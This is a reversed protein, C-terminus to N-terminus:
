ENYADSESRSINGEILNIIEMEESLSIILTVDNGDKDLINLIEINYGYQNLTVNFKVKYKLKGDQTIIVDSMNIECISNMFCDIM